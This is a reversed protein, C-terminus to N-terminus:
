SFVDARRAAPLFGAACRGWGPPAVRSAIGGLCAASLRQWLWRVAAYAPGGACGVSRACMNYMNDLPVAVCGHRTLAGPLRELPSPAVCVTARPQADLM